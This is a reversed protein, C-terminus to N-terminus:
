SRLFAVGENGRAVPRPANGLRDVPRPLLYTVWNDRKYRNPAIDEAAPMNRWGAKALDLGGGLLYGLTGTVSSSSTDNDKPKAVTAKPAAPQPNKQAENEKKQKEEDQKKKAEEVKKNLEAENRYSYMVANHDGPSVLLHRGCRFQYLTKSSSSLYGYYEETLWYKNHDDKELLGDLLKEHRALTRIRRWKQKILQIAYASPAAPSLVHMLLEASILRMTNPFLM